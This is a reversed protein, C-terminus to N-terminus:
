KPMWVCKVGAKKMLASVRGTGGLAEILNITLPKDDSLSTAVVVPFDSTDWNRCSKIKQCVFMSAAHVSRVPGALPDMMTAAPVPVASPDMMTAVALFYIKFMNVKTQDFKHAKQHCCM